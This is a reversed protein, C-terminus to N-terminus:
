DPVLCLSHPLLLVYKSCQLVRKNTLQHQHGIRLLALLRFQAVYNIMGASKSTFACCRPRSSHLADAAVSFLYGPFPLADAALSLAVSLTGGCICQSEILAVCHAVCLYTSM